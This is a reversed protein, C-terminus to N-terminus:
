KLPFGRTPNGPRPTVPTTAVARWIGGAVLTLVTLFSGLILYVSKNFGTPVGDVQQADSSPISDKCMPCALVAANLCLVLVLSLIISRRKM